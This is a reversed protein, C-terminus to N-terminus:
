CIMEVQGKLASAIGDGEQGKSMLATACSMLRAVFFPYKLRTLPHGLIANGTIRKTMDRVQFVFRYSKEQRFIKCIMLKLIAM